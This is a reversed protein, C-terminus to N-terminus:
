ELGDDTITKIGLSKKTQNGFDIGMEQLWVVLPKGSKEKFSCESVSCKWLTKFKGGEADACGGCISHLEVTEQGCVPCVRKPILPFGNEAVMEHPAPSRSGATRTTTVVPAIGLLEATENYVVTINKEEPLGKAKRIENGCRIVLLKMLHVNPDFAM